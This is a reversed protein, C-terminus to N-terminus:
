RRVMGQLITLAFIVIIPSLDIAMAGARVPPLVRQIPRLVPDTIARLFQAISSMAGGPQLPSYSLVIRAFFCILYIQLASALLERM